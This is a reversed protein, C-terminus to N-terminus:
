KMEMVFYHGGGRDNARKINLKFIYLCMYMCIKNTIIIIITLYINTNLKFYQMIKETEHISYFYRLALAFALLPGYCPYSHGSFVCLFNGLRVTHFQIRFFDYIAEM